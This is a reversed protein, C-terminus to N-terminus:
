ETPDHKRGVKAVRQANSFAVHHVDHDLVAVEHQATVLGAAHEAAGAIAQGLM